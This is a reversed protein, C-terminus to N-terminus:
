WPRIGFTGGHPLKKGPMKGPVRTSPDEEERAALQRQRVADGVHAILDDVARLRKFEDWSLHVRLSASLRRRIQARQLTSAELDDTLRMEPFVEGPKLNLERVVAEYVEAQALTAAEVYTYIAGVDRMRRFTDEPLDIQFRKAIALRIAERQEKDAGLKGDLADRDKIQETPVDLTKSIISLVGGVLKQDVDNRRVPQIAPQSSVPRDAMIGRSAPPADPMIGGGGGFGGMKSRGAGLGSAGYATGAAGVAALMAAAARGLFARRHEAPVKTQAIIAELMPTPVSDLMGAESPQLELGIVEAARSRETLLLPKFDSDVAAKKVLVEVGRPIPGLAQGSGPPRGGVITTRVTDQEEPRDAQFQPGSLKRPKDMPSGKHVHSPSHSHAHDAGPPVAVRTTASVVLM